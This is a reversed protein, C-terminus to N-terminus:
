GKSRGTVLGYRILRQQTRAVCLSVDPMALKLAKTVLDGEKYRHRIEAAREKLTFHQGVPGTTGDCYTLADAVASRERPFEKLADACGRLGAEYCAAFHHAVLCALREYGCSRLYYAGDVPHFGTRKLAPAYGIDHVYAAALLCAREDEDFTQGVWRAREVVGQVHLWRNGLSLLFKEAQESSWVVLDDYKSM